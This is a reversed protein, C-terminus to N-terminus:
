CLMPFGLIDKSPTHKGQGTLCASCIALEVTQVRILYLEVVGHKEVLSISSMLLSNADVNGHTSLHLVISTEMETKLEDGSLSNAALPQCEDYLHSVMLAEIGAFPLPAETDDKQPPGAKTVASTRLALPTRNVELNPALHLYTLGPTQSVAKSLILPKGDYFLASPPLRTLDGTPVFIIHSKQIIFEHVEGLLMESLEELVPQSDKVSNQGMDKEANLLYSLVKARIQM